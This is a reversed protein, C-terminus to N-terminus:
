LTLGLRAVLAALTVGELSKLVLDARSLDLGGTIGNPVAVCWMGAAKAAAVGNPSDEIAVAEGADVGLCEISALYLDPAPKVAAVDDRCRVCEFRDRLGLRVLHGNVWECSSSSAVAVRLGRGRAADLLEAVGPLVPQALVLQTRREIRGDLVEQTLPRGLQEELHGRPDFTATSSGVIEIWRDFPLDQGHARYVELWSRYVPEETDLILGDFDFVLARIFRTRVGM